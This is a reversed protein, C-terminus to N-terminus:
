DIVEINKIGANAYLEKSLWGQGFFEKVEADESCVLVYHRDREGQWRTIETKSCVYKGGVTQYLVLDLWRGRDKLSDRSTATALEYGRFKLDTDDDREVVFEQGEVSEEDIMEAGGVTPLESQALNRFDEFTHAEKEIEEVSYKLEDGDEDTIIFNSRYDPTEYNVDFDFSEKYNLSSANAIWDFFITLKQGRLDAIYTASGNCWRQYEPVYRDEDVRYDIENCDSEGLEIKKIEFDINKLDDLTIKIM